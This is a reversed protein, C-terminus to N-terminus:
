ESVRDLLDFFKSNKIRNELQQLFIEVVQPDFQKGAHNRLEEVAHQHKLARRYSRDSTMADYADAVAIIRAGLPIESGKLGSPYGTGDYNEHHHFVLPVIDSFFAIPELIDKGKSPHSRFLELQDLSLAEPTNLTSLDVALKGIDHLMSAEVIVEKEQDKLDFGEAIISTLIRVRESHGSTYKDKTELSRAFAQITQRFSSRLNDVLNSTEIASAARSALMSLLKRQHDSMLLHTEFHFLNIFGFLNRNNRLPLSVFQTLTGASPSKVFYKPVQNSQVWVVRNESHDKLLQEVNPSGIWRDLKELLSTRFSQIEFCSTKGQRVYLVSAKPKTLNHITDLTLEFIHETSLSRDIAESTDYVSLTERLRLNEEELRKREIAQKVALLVEEMKFPKLIYNCAGLKIAELSSELTGYGTMLIFMLFPNQKRLTTLLDLGTEGPMKLDCLVLDLSHDHIMQRAELVNNAHFTEYGESQLFDALLEQIMPEDDVVLVAGKNETLEM